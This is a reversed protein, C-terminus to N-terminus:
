YEPNQQIANNGNLEGQPIPLTFRYDNIGLSCPASFSACDTENRNIGTNIDPGIRKLDLYRQGEFAFELRREELIDSLAQTLNAYSPTPQNSGFRADRLEKVDQAAGALNGNRAKAEAAILKMESSRIWKIDNIRPGGDASGPYKNLLIINQDSNEAAIQSEPHILVDFRADNSDLENYLGNAVELFPDGDIGAPPNFYFYTPIEQGDGQGRGLTFISEGPVEDLFMDIYEQPQSLPFTSVLAESLNIARQYDGEILAIRAQIAQITNINVRFNNSSPGIQSSATELDNKIFQLVEAVTNRTPQDDIEPVYDLIPVSLGSPDNYDPTYYMFLDLHALARLVLVEAEINAEQERESATDFELDEVGRLVRNANNITIYKSFSRFLM